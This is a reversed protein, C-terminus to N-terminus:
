QKLFKHWDSYCAIGQFVLGGLFGFSFPPFPLFRYFIASILIGLGFLWHHLHIKWDGIKLIFSGIRGQCGTKEGSFFKAAFYGSMAGLWTEVSVFALPIGLIFKSNILKRM